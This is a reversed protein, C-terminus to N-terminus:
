ENLGKLYRKNVSPKTDRGPLSDMDSGVPALSLGTEESVLLRGHLAWTKEDEARSLQFYFRFM